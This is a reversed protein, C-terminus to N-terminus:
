RVADHQGHVVFADANRGLFEVPQKLREVAREGFAAAEAEGDHM